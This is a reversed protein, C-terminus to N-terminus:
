MYKHMLYSSNPTKKHALPFGPRCSEYLDLQHRADAYSIACRAARGAMTVLAICILGLYALGLHALGPRTPSGMQGHIAASATLHYRAILVISPFVLLIKKQKLCLDYDRSSIPCLIKKIRLSNCLTIKVQVRLDSL